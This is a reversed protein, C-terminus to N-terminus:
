SGEAGTAIRRTRRLVRADLDGPPAAPPQAAAARAFAGLGGALSACEACAARHRLGPEDLPEGRALVTRLAACDATASV